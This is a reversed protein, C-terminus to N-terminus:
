DERQLATIQDANAPITGGTRRDLKARLERAALSNPMAHELLAIMRQAETYRDRRIERDIAAVVLPYLDNIGERVRASDPEVARAALTWELANDGPPAVMRDAAFAANARALLDSATPNPGPQASASAGLALGVICAILWRRMGSRKNRISPDM